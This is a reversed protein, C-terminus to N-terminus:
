KKPAAAGKVMRFGTYDAAAPRLQTKSDAPRDASGGMTKGAGERTLVWEAVNGGLDFVPEETEEGQAKFSGAEKLM